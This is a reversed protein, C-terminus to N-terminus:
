AEGDKTIPNKTSETYLIVSDGEEYEVTRDITYGQGRLIRLIAEKTKPNPCYEALLTEETM